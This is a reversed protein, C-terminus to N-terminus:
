EAQKEHTPAPAVPEQVPSAPPTTEPEPPAVAPQEAVPEPRPVRRASVHTPQPRVDPRRQPQTRPREPKKESAEDPKKEAKEEAPKKPTSEPQPVVAKEPVGKKGFRKQVESRYNQRIWNVQADDITSFHNKIDLGMSQLAIVMEKSPIGMEKALEHVRVKAM